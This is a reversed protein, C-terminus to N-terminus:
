LTVGLRLSSQFLLTAAKAARVPVPGGTTVIVAVERHVLEAALASLRDFQGEAWRFEFAVNEGEVFGANALGGQILAISKAYGTASAAGLFGIVPKPHRQAVTAVPWVTVAGGLLGIFERRKM